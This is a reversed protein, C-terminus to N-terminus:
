KSYIRWKVDANLAGFRDYEGILSWNKNIKYEVSYTEKGQETIDEGSRIVLREQASQNPNLKSLLSKGVFFALKSAKEQNSFGFDTRPIQGATLMLVIQESTLAPVSSFQINPEDAPGEAQMRIDYGFARGSALAFVRPRYPDQSRLSVIAQKVQLPAFPFIIKGESINAEGVAIPERLTGTINMAVSVQGQFFPSRITMFRDGRARVNLGWQDIPPQEISFYPPRRSPETVRGPAITQIDRLLFSDRLDASGSIIPITNNGNTVVLDLDSRLIVDPNRALPINKGQIALGIKPYGSNRTSKALGIDGSIRLTEGGIEGHLSALHLTDGHLQITAGIAQVVGIKPIPRTEVGSLSVRGTMLRGPQVGVNVSLEGTPALYKSIFPALPAIEVNPAKLSMEVHDAIFPLLEARSLNWFNTGLAVEGSISLPQDAIQISAPSIKLLRESLSVNAEVPGLEPLDRKVKLFKVSGANLHLTGNPNRISGHLELGLSANNLKVQTLKAVTGWFVENPATELKFDVGDNTSLQILRPMALPHISLPLFGRARAIVGNTGRAAFDTLSLGAQDLELDAQASIRKFADADFSFGGHFNGYLPGKDWHFSGALEPLEFNRLSPKLFLQFLEPHINTASFTLSGQAPWALQGSLALGKEAGKWILPQVEIMPWTKGTPESISVRFPRALSLYVEDGKRLDLERFIINTRGRQLSGGGSARLSAPGTKARVDFQDLVFQKGKWAAEINLPALGPASFRRLELQAQHALNSVPGSITGTLRLSEYGFGSPLLNTAITGSVNFRTPAFELKRLNAGGSIEAKSANPFGLKAQFSQLEPWDLKGSFEADALELRYGSLNTGRAEFIATPLKSGKELTIRGEVRGKLKLWPLKELDANLSLEAHESILHGSYDLETPGALSLKLGPATSLAKEITVSNTDGRAVLDISAPPLKKGAFPEATARLNLTFHNTEWNARFDGTFENYGKLKLLDASIHFDPASLKARIPINGARPFEASGRVTTGKYMGTLKSALFGNTEWLQVKVSLDLPNMAYYVQYPKGTGLKAKLEFPVFSVPWVGGADLNGENWTIQGFSYRKGGYLLIGNLLTARPLWKMAQRIYKEAQQFESYIGRHANTGPSATIQNTHVIIKWGNIKLYEPPPNTGSESAKRYWVEPYFGEVRSIRADFLANSRVLDNLAFRGNPLREYNRFQVGYEAAIPRLARGFWRHYTLLAVAVLILLIGVIVGFWKLFRRL